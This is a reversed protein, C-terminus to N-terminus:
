PLNAGEFVPIFIIRIDFDAADHVLNDLRM